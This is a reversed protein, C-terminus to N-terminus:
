FENAVKAQDFLMAHFELSTKALKKMHAKQFIAHTSGLRPESGDSSVVYHGILALYQSIGINAVKKVLGMILDQLLWYQIAIMYQVRISEVPM